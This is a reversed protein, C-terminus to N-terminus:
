FALQVLPLLCVFFVLLLIICIVAADKCLKVFGPHQKIKKCPQDGVNKGLNQEDREVKM